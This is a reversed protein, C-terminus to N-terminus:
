KRIALINTAPWKLAAPPPPEVVYAANASSSTGMGPENSSVVARYGGEDAIYHVTRYVGLPDVYGYSGKVTKGDSIEQRHQNTGQSDVSQYGFEYPQPVETPINAPVLLGNPKVLVPGARVSLMFAASIALVALACKNTFDLLM